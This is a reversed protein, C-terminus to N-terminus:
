GIFFKLSLLWPLSFTVHQKTWQSIYISTLYVFCYINPWKGGGGSSWNAEYQNEWVRSGPTKLIITTLVTWTLSLHNLYNGYKDPYFHNIVPGHIDLLIHGLCENHPGHTRTEGNMEWELWIICMVYSCGIVCCCSSVNLCISIALIVLEFM